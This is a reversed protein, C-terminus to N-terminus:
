GQRMSHCEVFLKADIPYFDTEDTSDSSLTPTLIAVFQSDIRNVQRVLVPRLVAHALAPRGKITQTFFSHRCL